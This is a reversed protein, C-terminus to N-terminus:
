MDEKVTKFYSFPILIFPLFITIALQVYIFIDKNIYILAFFIINIILFASFIFLLFEKKQKRKVTVKEGEQIIGMIDINNDFNLINIADMNDLTSYLMANEHNIEPKSSSEKHTYYEDIYRELDKDKM